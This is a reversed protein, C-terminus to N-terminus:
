HSRGSNCKNNSEASHSQIHKKVTRPDLQTIESVKEYTKYKEYLSACYASLLEQASLQLNNFTDGLADEPPECWGEIESCHDRNLLVCRVTQELERVNGPWHYHAGVEREIVELVM